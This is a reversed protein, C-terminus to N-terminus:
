CAYRFNVTASSEGPTLVQVTARADYAGPGHFLWTLHLNVSHQGRALSQVLTGSGIGDNRTWRYTLRGANGNTNVTAVVDATKECAVVGPTAKVSVSRVRLSGSPWLLWVVVAALALTLALNVARSRRLRKPRTPTEATVSASSTVIVAPVGPGFRLIEVPPAPPHTPVAQTPVLTTDRLDVTDVPQDAPATTRLDITPQDSERPDVPTTRNGERASM